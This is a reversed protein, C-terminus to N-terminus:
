GVAPVDAPEPEPEPMPEKVLQLFYSGKKRENLDALKEDAAARENYDFVAVQKMGRDFVGWRARWRPAAKKPRAKRVKKVAPAKAGPKRRPPAGGGPARAAAKAVPAARPRPNPSARRNDTRSAM